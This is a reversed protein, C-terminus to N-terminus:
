AEVAGARMALPFHVEEPGRVKPIASIPAYILVKVFFTNFNGAGLAPARKLNIAFISFLGQGRPCFRNGIFEHLVFVTESEGLPKGFLGALKFEPAREEDWLNVLGGGSEERKKVRGGWARLVAVRDRDPGLKVVEDGCIRPM